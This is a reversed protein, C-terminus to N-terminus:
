ASNESGTPTDTSNLTRVEFVYHGGRKWEAACMMWFMRNAKLAQIISENGSWGATSLRFIDGDQTWYGCDAYQWRPKIYEMLGHFDSYPWLEIRALEDDDPYGDDDM